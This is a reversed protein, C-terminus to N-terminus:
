RMRAARRATLRASRIEAPHLARVLRAVMWNFCSKGDRMTRWHGAEACVRKVFNSKATKSFFLVRTVRTDNTKM